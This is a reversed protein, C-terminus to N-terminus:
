GSVEGQREVSVGQCGGGSVTDSNCVAVRVSMWGSMEVRVDGGQCGCRWIEVDMDPSMGVM